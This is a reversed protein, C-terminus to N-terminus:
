GEDIKALQEAETPENRNDDSAFSCQHSAFLREKPIIKSADKLFEFIRQEDDLTATEYSPFGLVIETDPRDRFVELVELSGARDEDLELFFRDYKRQKPCFGCDQSALRGV